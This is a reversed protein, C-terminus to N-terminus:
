QATVSFRQRGVKILGSDDVGASVDDSEFIVRWFTVGTGTPLWDHLRELVAAMITTLGAQTTSSAVTAITVTFRWMPRTKAGVNESLMDELLVVPPAAGDPMAALDTYVAVGSGVNNNLRAYIAKMLEGRPDAM